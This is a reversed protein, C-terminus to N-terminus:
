SMWGARIIAYFVLLKPVRLACLLAFLRYPFRFLGCAYCVISFPFPFLSALLIAALGHRRFLQAVAGRNTVRRVFRLHALRRALFMGFHGGAISGMSIAVLVPGPPAGAAISAFMYFQPPIPFQMSDAIFTGAGMGVLGFSSVIREGLARFDARFHHAVLSVALALAALGVLLRVFLLVLDARSMPPPEPTTPILELDPM